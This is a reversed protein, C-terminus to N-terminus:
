AVVNPNFKQPYPIVPNPPVAPNPPVFSPTIIRPEESTPNTLITLSNFPQIEVVDSGQAMAPAAMVVLMAAMVLAVTFVLLMRRM